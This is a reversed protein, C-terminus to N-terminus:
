ISIRKIVTYGVSLTCYEIIEWRKNIQTFAKIVQHLNANNTVTDHMVIYKKTHSQHLMLEKALWEPKHVTDIFLIDASSVANPDLSSMGRITLKIKHKKCYKEFLPRCANFRPLDNDIAEVSVPHQLIAAALTTGQALGLEKYSDCDKLLRTIADHVACYDDGSHKEQGARLEKYFAPLSKSHTMDASYM